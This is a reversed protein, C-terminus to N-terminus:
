IIQDFRGPSIFPVLDPASAPSFVFDQQSTWTNRVTKSIHGCPLTLSSTSNWIRTKYIVMKRTSDDNKSNFLRHKFKNSIVMPFDGNRSPLLVDGHRSALDGNQQDFIMMKQWNWGLNEQQIGTELGRCTSWPASDSGSNRPADPVPPATGRPSHGFRWKAQRVHPNAGEFCGMKLPFHHFTAELGRNPLTEIHIQSLACPESVFISLRSSKRTNSTLEM